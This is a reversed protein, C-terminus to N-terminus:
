KQCGRNTEEAFLKDKYQIVRHCEPGECKLERGLQKSRRKVLRATEKSPEGYKKYGTCRASQDKYVMLTVEDDVADCHITTATIQWDVTSM